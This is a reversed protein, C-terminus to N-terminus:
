IGLQSLLVAVQNRISFVRQRVYLCFESEVNQLYRLSTVSRITVMVKDAKSNRNREQLLGKLFCVAQIELANERVFILHEAGVTVVDALKKWFRRADGPTQLSVVDHLVLGAHRFPLKEVSKTACTILLIPSLYMM